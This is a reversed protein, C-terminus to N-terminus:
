HADLWAGRMADLDAVLYWVDSHVDKRIAWGLAMGYALWDDLAAAQAVRTVGLTVDLLVDKPLAWEHAKM